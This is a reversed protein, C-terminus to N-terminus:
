AAPPRALRLIFAGLIAGLAALMVISMVAVPLTIDGGGTNVRYVQHFVGIFFALLVCGMLRVLTGLGAITEARREPALWYARHPINILEDPIRRNLRAIGEFMATMFLVTGIHWATQTGRPMWGNAKGSADFHSAVTEPLRSHQWFAQAVSLLVLSAFVVTVVRNM